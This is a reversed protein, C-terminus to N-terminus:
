IVFKFLGSDKVTLLRDLGGFPLHSKLNNLGGRQFHINLEFRCLSNIKIFGVEICGRLTYQAIHLFSNRIDFLPRLATYLIMDIFFFFFIM